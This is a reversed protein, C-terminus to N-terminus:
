VIWPSIGVITPMDNADATIIVVHSGEGMGNAKTAYENASVGPRPFERGHVYVDWTGNSQEGLLGFQPVNERQLASNLRRLLRDRNAERM